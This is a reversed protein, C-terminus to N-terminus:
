TGGGAMALLERAALQGAESDPLGALMRTLERVRADGDVRAATASAGDRSVVFQADAFAAVQPLHTVCVVQGGAALEALKRGLTLATTGGVGTDVEDFVLTEGAETRAALRVALVLRSLEGGSATSGIPALDLRPDSSFWIEARDAGSPGPAVAGVRIEIRPEGMGLDTLHALAGQALRAGAARRAATLNAAASELAAEASRLREDIQDAMRLLREIEGARDSAQRGFDNVEALTRGYKRKLDGLATLRQEVEALTGPDQEVGEWAGSIGRSLDSLQEAVLEAEGALSKSGPDLDAVKRLRAVVEGIAEGLDELLRASDSLNVSIEESNRLRSADGELQTDEDDGPAASAIEGAQFAVLDLERRLTMSDGGLTEVDRRASVLTDWVGRYAAQPEAVLDPASVDILGLVISPRRLALQDHQGIVEVLPGLRDALSGASVLVGDAYSRSRGSAPVTRAVVVENEESEFLGEARAEGAQDGVKAADAKEGLLLRLGGLLLTKGTGTEGTIVNFGPELDLAADTLVGLNVVRLHHLM